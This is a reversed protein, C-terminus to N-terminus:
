NYNDRERRGMGGGTESKGEVNDAAVSKEREHVRSVTLALTTVRQKAKTSGHDTYGWEGM